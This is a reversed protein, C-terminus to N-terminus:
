KKFIGKSKVLFYEKVTKQLSLNNDILFQPDSLATIFVRDTLALLNPNFDNLIGKKIGIMYFERMRGTAYFMFQYVREWLEPYWQKLDLLFNNSIGALHISGVQVANFYRQEFSQSEDFLMAEFKSIEMIKFDIVAELIEKRSSFHKYLTAKSIGLIKAIETITNNSLQGSLYLPALIAVWQAKVEPNDTRKKNVPNRGM